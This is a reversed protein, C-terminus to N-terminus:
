EDEYININEQAQNYFSCTPDKNDVYIKSVLYIGERLIKSKIDKDLPKVEFHMREEGITMMLSGAIYTFHGNAVWDRLKPLAKEYKTLKEIEDILPDPDRSTFTM